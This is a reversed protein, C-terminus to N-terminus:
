MRRGQINRARPSGPNVTPNVSLPIRNTHRTMLRPRFFHGAHGRHMPTLRAARADTITVHKIDGPAAVGGRVRFERNGPRDPQDKVIHEDSYRAPEGATFDCWADHMQGVAEDPRFRHVLRPVGPHRHRWARPRRPDSRVHCPVRQADHERGAAAVHQPSWGFAWTPMQRCSLRGIPLYGSGWRTVAGHLAFSSKVRAEVGRFMVRSLVHDIGGDMFGMSNAMSAASTHPRVDIDTWGLHQAAAAISSHHDVLIYKM